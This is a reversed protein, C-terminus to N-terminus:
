KNAYYVSITFLDVIVFLHIRIGYINPFCIWSSQDTRFTNPKNILM